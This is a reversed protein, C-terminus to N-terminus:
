MERLHQLQSCHGKIAQRYDNIAGEYDASEFKKNGSEFLLKAAESYM